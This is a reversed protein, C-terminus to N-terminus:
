LTNERRVLFRGMERVIVEERLGVHIESGDLQEEDRVIRGALRARTTDLSAIVARPLSSPLMGGQMERVSRFLEYTLAIYQIGAQPGVGLFRLDASPRGNRSPSISRVKQKVTQLVVRRAEPPLPEGFTTNLTVVFRDGDNLLADVQKAAQYMLDQDDGVLREYDSLTKVDRVVASRAGLSRRVVRCAFDRVITQLRAAAQPKRQRTVPAGIADDEDALLQLVEVDLKSLCQYRRIFQLGERVSHSFRADIDRFKITTKGSLSVELDPDAFAPDLTDCLDALQTRL